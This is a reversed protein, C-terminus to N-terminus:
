VGLKFKLLLIKANTWPVFNTVKDELAIPQYIHYTLVKDILIAYWM